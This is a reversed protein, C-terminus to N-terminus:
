GETFMKLGFPSRSNCATKAWNVQSRQGQKIGIAGFMEKHDLTTATGRDLPPLCGKKGAGHRHYVAQGRLPFLTGKWWM